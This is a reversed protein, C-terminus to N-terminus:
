VVDTSKKQPTAAQYSEAGAQHEVLTQQSLLHSIEQLEAHVRRLKIPIPGSKAPLPLSAQIERLESKLTQQAGVITYGEGYLLRRIRLAVDVDRQRYLRQGTSGKGPRLQTFETEWFRLVYAEVGVIRAVEGIRFFLKDPIIADPENLLPKTSKRRRKSKAM